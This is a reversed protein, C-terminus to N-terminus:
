KGTIFTTTSLLHAHPIRRIFKELNFGSRDISKSLYFRPPISFLYFTYRHIEKDSPNPSQYPLVSYGNVVIWHVYSSDCDLLLVLYDEPLNNSYILPQQQTVFEPLVEQNHSWTQSATWFIRLM